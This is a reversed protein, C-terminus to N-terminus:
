SAQKRFCRVEKGYYTSAEDVTHLYAFSWDNGPKSLVGDKTQFGMHVPVNNDLFLVLDEPLPKEVQEYHWKPLLSLLDEQKVGAEFAADVNAYVLAFDFCSMSRDSSLDFVQWGNQILLSKLAKNSIEHNWDILRQAPEKSMEEKSIIIENNKQFFEQAQKSVQPIFKKGAAYGPIMGIIKGTRAVLDQIARAEYILTFAQDSDWQHIKAEKAAAKQLDNTVSFAFGTCIDTLVARDSIDRYLSVLNM